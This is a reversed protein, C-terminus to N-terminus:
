TSIKILKNEATKLLSEIEKLLKEGKEYNKFADDIDLDDSQLTELVEALEAQLEKYSKKAM